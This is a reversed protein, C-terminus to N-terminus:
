RLTYVQTQLLEHLHFTTTLIETKLIDVQKGERTCILLYCKREVHVFLFIGKFESITLISLSGSLFSLDYM